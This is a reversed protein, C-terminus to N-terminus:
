SGKNAKYKLWRKQRRLRKQQQRRDQLQLLDRHPERVIKTGLEIAIQTEERTLWKLWHKHPSCYLGTHPGSLRIECPCRDHLRPKLHAM